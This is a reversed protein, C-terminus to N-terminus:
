KRAAKAAKAAEKALKEAEKTAVESRLTDTWLSVGGNVGLAIRYPKHEDHRGANARIYNRVKENVASMNESQANLKFAVAHVLGDLKLAQDYSNLVDDVQSGITANDTERDVVLANLATDFAALTADEDVSGDVSRVLLSEVVSKM